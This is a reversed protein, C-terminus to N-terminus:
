VHPSIVPICISTFGHQRGLFRPIIMMGLRFDWVGLCAREGPLVLHCVPLLPIVFAARLHASMEYRTTVMIVEFLM